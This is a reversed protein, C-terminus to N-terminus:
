RRIRAHEIQEALREPQRTSVLWYPHPDDADAVEVLLSRRLYSRVALYARQDAEPGLRARTAAADLVHVQGVWPWELLADGARLGREDVRVLLSGYWSLALAVVAAVVVGAAIGVGPGLSYGIAVVFSLGFGLSIVWWSLPVRLREEM